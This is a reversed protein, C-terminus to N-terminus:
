RVLNRLNGRNVERLNDLGGGITPRGGANLFQNAGRNVSITGSPANAGRAM